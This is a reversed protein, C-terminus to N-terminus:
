FQLPALNHEHKFRDNNSYVESKQTHHCRVESAGVPRVLEM